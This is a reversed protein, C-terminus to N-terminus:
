DIASPIKFIYAIRTYWQQTIHHEVVKGAPSYAHILTLQEKHRGVCAVHSIHGKIKCLVIHDANIQHLPLAILHQHFKKTLNYHIPSLGYNTHDLTTLEVGTKSKLSLEAAIGM